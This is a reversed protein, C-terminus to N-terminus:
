KIFALLRDGRVDLYFLGETYELVKDRMGDYIALTGENKLVRHIEELVLRREQVEHFVDCMWAVDVCENPLGTRGDSLITEINLLGQKRSKKAVIELQQPFRDLAYVRGTVGVISAAAIAFWGTGCGYDLFTQGEKVLNFEGWSRLIKHGSYIRRWLPWWYVWLAYHARYVPTLREQL